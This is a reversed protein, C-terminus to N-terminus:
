PRLDPNEINLVKLSSYFFGLIKRNNRTNQRSFASEASKGTECKRNWKGTQRHSLMIVAPGVAHYYCPRCCSLLLPSLASLMIATAAVPDVAYCCCPRCCTM